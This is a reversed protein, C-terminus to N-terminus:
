KSLKLLLNVEKTLVNDIEYNKLIFKRGNQGLRKRLNVDQLMRLKSEISKEDTESLLGNEGDNILERIGEVNSGLVAIGCSMAELLIKPNGEIHSPLVFVDTTSLAKPLKEYDIPGYFNLDVNNKEALLMLNRKQTGVGIFIARVKPINKLALILNELNKQKELRGIFMVTFNKKSKEPLKRFLNTDVGNPIFVLKKRGIKETFVQELQRSTVIVKDALKLIPSEILKYLVSQINKDEFKAFKSYDYGFNIIFKKKHFIKSIAAPIGGTLQLGRLVECDNIEKRKLFPLLLSYVYRNLNKDNPVLYCNDPLSFGKEKEYSFIYVKEFNQSYTKINYDVLRKLQGKKKFDSFSEGIALILGLNM